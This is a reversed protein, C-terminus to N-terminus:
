LVPPFLVNLVCFGINLHGPREMGGPLPGPKIHQRRRLGSVRQCTSADCIDPPQRVRHHAKILYAPLKWVPQAVTMTIRAMVLFGSDANGPGPQDLPHELGPLHGPKARLGRVEPPHYLCQHLGGPPLEGSERQWRLWSGLAQPKRSSCM